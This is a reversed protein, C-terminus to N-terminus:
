DSQPQETYTCGHRRREEASHDSVAVIYVGALVFVVRPCVHAGSLLIDNEKGREGDHTEAVHPDQPRDPSRPGVPFVSRHFQNETDHSHKEDTPDRVIHDNKQPPQRMVQDWREIFAMHAGCEVVCEKHASHNRERMTTEVRHKVRKHSCLKPTVQIGEPVPLATM